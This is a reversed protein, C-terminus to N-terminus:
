DKGTLSKTVTGLGLGKLIGKLGLGGLLNDLLGGLGLGSLLKGVLGLVGALLLGVAALIQGLPEALLGWLPNLEKKAHPMGAIKKKANEITQTVNGTLEKLVEALRHEEPTAERSASKHKANAAIRGDPDLGRIVGNAEQLIQGGQELLPRVTDVVKQEDLEEKPQREATEIADTIMKLVPTIKDLSGQICYAMQSALKKDQELQERAKIEEPTEKPEEVVAEPEPLDGILTVHGVVQGKQNYVDQDDDCEM